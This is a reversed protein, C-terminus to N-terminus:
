RARRLRDIASAVAVETPGTIGVLGVSQDIIAISTGTAIQIEELPTRGSGFLFAVLGSPEQTLTRLLSATLTVNQTSNTRPLPPPTPPISVSLTAEAAVKKAARRAVSTSRRKKDGSVTPTIRTSACPPVVFRASSDAFSQILELVKQTAQTTSAEVNVLSNFRGDVGEQMKIFANTAGVIINKTAGKTGIVRYALKPSVQIVATTFSVAREIQDYANQLAESTEATVTVIDDAVDIRCNTLAEIRKKTSGGSGILRGILHSGIRFTGRSLASLKATGDGLDVETVQLKIDSGEQIVDRLKKQRGVLIEKRPVPLDAGGAISVFVTEDLVSIVRGTVSAEKRKQEDLSALLTMDIVRVDFENSRRFLWNIARRYQAERSLEILRCREEYSMAKSVILMREGADWRLDPAWKRRSLIAELEPTCEDLRRHLPKKSFSKRAVRARCRNHLSMEDPRQPLRDLFVFAGCPVGGNTPGPDLWLYVGREGIEVIDADVTRETQKGLFRAAADAAEKLRNVRVRGFNPDIQRSTGGSTASPSIEEIIVYFHDGAKLIPEQLAFNRGLLSCDYPDMVIELKTEGERVVLYALWDSVYRELQVVEVTVSDGVRYKTRFADFPSHALPIQFIVRPTALDSVDFDTVIAEYEEAGASPNLAIGRLEAFQDGGTRNPVPEEDHNQETEVWAPLDDDDTRGFSVSRKVEEKAGATEALRGEAEEVELIAGGITPDCTSYGSARRKRHVQNGNVRRM